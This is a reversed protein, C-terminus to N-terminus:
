KAAGSQLRLEAKRAENAEARVDSGVADQVNSFGDRALLTSLDRKICYM